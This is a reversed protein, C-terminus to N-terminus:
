VFSDPVQAAHQARLRRRRDKLCIGSSALFPCLRTQAHGAGALDDLMVPPFLEESAISHVLVSSGPLQPSKARDKSDCHKGDRQSGCSGTRRKVSSRRSTLWAGSLRCLRSRDVDPFMVAHLYMVVTARAHDNEAFIERWANVPVGARFTVCCMVSICLRRDQKNKDAPPPAGQM